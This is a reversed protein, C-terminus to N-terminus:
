LQYLMFLLTFLTLVTLPTLLTLLMLLHTAEHICDIFSLAYFTALLPSNLYLIFKPPWPLSHFAIPPKGGFKKYKVKIISYKPPYGVHGVDKEVKDKKRKRSELIIIFLLLLIIIIVYYYYYLYLIYFYNLRYVFYFYM